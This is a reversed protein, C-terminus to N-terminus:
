GLRQRAFGGGVLGHHVLKGVRGRAVDPLVRRLLEADRCTEGGIVIEFRGELAEQVLAELWAGEAALSRLLSAEMSSLTLMQHFPTTLQRGRELERLAFGDVQAAARPRTSLELGGLEMLQALFGAVEPGGQQILADAPLEPLSALAMAAQQSAAGRIGLARGASTILRGAQPEPRFRARLWLGALSDGAGTVREPHTWIGRRFGRGACLDLFDGRAGRGQVAAWAASLKPGLGTPADSEPLADGVFALGSSAAVQGLSLPEFHEPIIDQVLFRWPAEGLQEAQERLAAAYPSNEGQHNETIEALLAKGAQVRAEPTASQPAAALFIQRALLKPGSGPHAAHSMVALGEPTLWGAVRSLLAERVAVPVWSLLGHVLIYDFPQEPAWRTVDAQVWRANELGHHASWARATRLESESLDLGVFRAGPHRAAMPILNSGSACGLELVRATATPAAEVGRLAAVARLHEIETFAYAQPIYDTM